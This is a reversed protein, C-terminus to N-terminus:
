VMNKDIYKSDIDMNRVEPRSIDSVKRQPIIKGIDIESFSLGYSVAVRHYDSPPIDDTELNEPKPLKKPTIIVEAVSKRLREEAQKIVEQYFEMQSGGGCLFVPLGNKWESALPNKHKKTGCIVARVLKSCRSSFEQNMGDFAEFDERTPSLYEKINPLPSIGDYSYILRNEIIEQVKTIRDRHLIFAGLKEVEAYLITYVDEDNNEHLIFTSVDLTSAGIDVLLYMGNQRMQSRAYGIVEAIIEPIPNVYDPHLQEKEEDYGNREFQHKAEKEAEKIDALSITNKANLTLNWGTLGALKMSKYLDTDDYSRSSLGINLEWNILLHKYEPSKAKCFWKSIELLVLGIYGSVLDFSTAIKGSKTKFIQDPNEIFNIKLDNLETEGAGLGMSGDANVFLRTPLLYRNSKSAIGDFPVAFARKLQKDQLVVKTCSTGFDFGIVIDREEKYSGNHIQWSFKKLSPEERNEAHRQAAHEIKPRLSIEPESHVANWKESPSDAQEVPPVVSKLSKASDDPIKRIFRAIIKPLSQIKQLFSRGFNKIKGTSRTIKKRVSSTQDAKEEKEKKEPVEKSKLAVDSLTEESREFGSRHTSVNQKKRKNEM